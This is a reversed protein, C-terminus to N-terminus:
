RATRLQATIQVAAIQVARRRAETRDVGTGRVSSVGGSRPTRSQRSLVWRVDIVAVAVDGLLPSEDSINASLLLKNGASVLEDTATRLEQTVASALQQAEVSGSRLGAVEVAFPSTHVSTERNATGPIDVTPASPNSVVPSTRSTGEVTSPPMLSEAPARHRSAIAQQEKGIWAEVAAIENPEVLQRLKGGTPRTGGRSYLEFSGDSLSFVYVLPQGLRNFLPYPRGNQDAVPNAKDETIRLRTTAPVIKGIGRAIEDDVIGGIQSVMRASTPLYVALTLCIVTSASKSFMMRRIRNAADKHGSYAVLGGLVFIPFLLGPQRDIPLQLALSITVAAGWALSFISRSPALWPQLWARSATWESSGLLPSSLALATATALMSTIVGFVFVERWGGAIAITIAVLGVVICATCFVLAKFWVTGLRVVTRRLGDLIERREDDISEVDPHAQSKIM